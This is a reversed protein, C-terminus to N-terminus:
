WACMSWLMLGSFCQTCVRMAKTHAARRRSDREAALMASTLGAVGAGGPYLRKAWAGERSALALVLPVTGCSIHNLAPIYTDDYDLTNALSGNFLIADRLGLREAQGIAVSEHATGLRMLAALITKASDSRAAAIACGLTDLIHLKAKDVLATPVDEFRLGAAFTAFQEAMTQDPM